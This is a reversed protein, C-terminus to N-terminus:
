PADAPPPLSPRPKDTLYNQRTVVKKGSKAELQRRANGAITGGDRAATENENFGRADRNLAIETTKGDSSTIRLQRCLTSLETGSSEQERRKMRYWYDRPNPSDTLVEIIDVVAFYWQNEHWVRRIQKGGFVIIKGQSDPPLNPEHEHGGSRVAM